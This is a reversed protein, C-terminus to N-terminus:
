PVRTNESTYYTLAQPVGDTGFVNTVERFVFPITQLTLNSVAGTGPMPPPPPPAPLALPAPGAVVHMHLHNHFSIGTDGALMIPQGRTIRQGIILNAAVGRAAFVQRVSNQRGHGYVAYSWVPAGGPGRDHVPDPIGVPIGAEDLDHRIAIFNWTDRATQGGILFGSATAAAAAAAAEATNPETDDPIL